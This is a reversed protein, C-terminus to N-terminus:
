QNTNSNNNEQSDTNPQSWKSGAKALAPNIPGISAKGKQPGNSGKVSVEGTVAHVKTSISGAKVKVKLRSGARTVYVDKTLSQNTSGGETPCTETGCQSAYGTPDTGALPNNMIYSYPNMSQSNTPSQIVPDVSLFRGVNYDYVRGNMHIIEAKDLHEHDTFGRRTAMETDLPNDALTANAGPDRWDGGMPKGFPDFHRKATVTGHQDTFTTSSGLRDKLTFRIKKQNQQNLTDSVIAVDSIYAKIRTESAEKEVEYLKDIYHTTITKGGETRVQKYRMIDAGYSLAIDSGKRKITLPKNFANYTVEEVGNRHTQNGAADYVYTESGGNKLSISSIQNTGNNYQYANANNTSYDSKYLINGVADYGYHITDKIGDIDRASSKLRHLGDYTFTETATFGLDNRQQNTINGYSDYGTYQIDQVTANNANYFRTRLLQGLTSSYENDLTLKGGALQAATTNGLTDQSTIQRYVYGSAANSETTLYGRANYDYKVSLGNPYSLKIPRGYNDDYQTVVSYSSNDIVTTTTTPRALSDYSFSKLHGDLSQSSPLGIKQSDWQFQAHGEDSFRDTVRGLLDMDYRIIKGTADTQKELEGFSNYTFTTKGQNPDEVWDKRGLNDYLAYISNDAADKIVIPQGGGNYVYRTVGDLHDKTSVLQKLSNYTRSMNLTTGVSPVVTIDTTHGRFDYTTTLTGNTGPTVKQTARGLVDFSSYVTFSPNQNSGYPFSEHTKLGRDNYKTDVYLTDNNFGQTRSRLTRGLKDIYTASTPAGVQQTEIRMVAHDPAHGDLSLYRLYQPQVGPANIQVPRAFADYETSTTLGNADTVQTPKGTAADTVTSVQHLYGNVTKSVTLPFYSDTGYLQLKNHPNTGSTSDGTGTLVQGTQSTSIPQGYSNWVTSAVACDTRAKCAAEGVATSGPAVTTVKPKRLAADYVPYHTTVTQSTNTNIGNVTTGPANKHGATKTVTQRTVKNPWVDTAAFVTSSQTTHTVFEDEVVSTSASVNGYKDVNAANITTQKRTINNAADCSSANLDCTINVNTAQFIKYLGKSGWESQHNTNRQWTGEVISIPVSKNGPTVTQREVQSSFPFKQLFETDITLQSNAVDVETIRRFGRFGRGQNNFTAGGYRYLKKNQSGVGNSANFEAVVTLSSGFHFHETDDQQIDGGNVYGHDPEYFNSYADSSLPKYDWSNVMGIGNTVTKMLDIAAYNFRGNADKADGQWAGLNRTVFVQNKNVITSGANLTCENDPSCNDAFISVIDSLGDGNVDMVTRKTSAAIIDTNETRTTITGDLAEDFYIAEYYRASGDYVEGPIATLRDFDHEGQVLSWLQDDCMPTDLLVLQNNKREWRKIKACASAAVSKAILLESRGDGDHDMVLTKSIVPEWMFDAEMPAHSYGVERMPLTIGLNIWNSAFSGGLNLKVSLTQDNNISLWDQLGDANVDMFLSSEAVNTNDSLELHGSFPQVNYSLTGDTAIKGYYIEKPFSGPRLTRNEHVVFDATGDGDMDGMVQANTQRVPVNRNNTGVSYDMVYIRNSANYPAAPNRTHLYLYLKSDYDNGTTSNDFALDPWGDANFDNVAVLDNYKNTLVIGTDIWSDSGAMKVKINRTEGAQMDYYNPYDLEDTKGDQNFDPAHCLTQASLHPKICSGLTSTHTGTLEGEANTHYGSGTQNQAMPWDLTGDGNLDGRPAVLSLDHGNHPQVKTGDSKTFELAELEYRPAAEQWDFTTPTRCSETSNKYACAEVSRLLTRGSSASMNGYNLNYRRVKTTKYFTEISSLRKTTRTLGGALYGSSYDTNGATDERNEYNFTVSRDGKSNGFGTYEIAALTFEGSGHNTYRYDIRNGALDVHKDIAWTMVEPFGAASHRSNIGDPGGFTMVHGGATTVTFYSDSANIGGTQVVTSLNDLETRYQTGSEGYIGSVAMLRQGDLCLRDKQANYQVSAAFGDQARTAACRSIGSGASLSWGMGAIGNGGSSSYNLSVSPQMGGRGPVLTIPINYSAQGGSVSASGATAGNFDSAAPVPRNAPLPKSAVSGGTTFWDTESQSVTVTALYIDSSASGDSVTVPVSLTGFFGANPTITNGSRSYNNGNNVSLTFSSSDPDTVTFQSIDLTVPTQENTTIVGQGGISPADNVSSVTLQVIGDVRAYTGTEDKVRFYFSDSGVFNADPTYRYRSPYIPDATLSGNQPLAYMALETTLRAGPDVDATLTTLDVTLVTDELTSFSGNQATPADNTNNVTISFAPLAVSQQGDSVSVVIGSYNGVDGNRPTGSLTGGSFSAWSPQNVISYSLTDGVDEDNAPPKSPISVTKM